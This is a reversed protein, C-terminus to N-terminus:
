KNKENKLHAGFFSNNLHLHSEQAKSKTLCFAVATFRWEWM